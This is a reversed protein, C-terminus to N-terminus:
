CTLLVQILRKMYAPDVTSAFACQFGNPLVLKIETTIVAPAAAEAAIKVPVLFNSMPQASTSKNAVGRYYSFQSLVINKQKCFERQSLGSKEHEAVLNFWQPRDIKLNKSNM